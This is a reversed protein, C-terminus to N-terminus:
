RRILSAVRSKSNQTPSIIGVRSGAPRLNNIARYADLTLNLTNTNISFYDLPDINQATAVQMLIDTLADAKPKKFGLKVLKSNVMFYKAPDFNKTQPDTLKSLIDASAEPLPFKITANELYAILTDAVVDYKIQNGFTNYLSTSM